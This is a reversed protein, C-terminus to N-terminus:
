PKGPKMEEVPILTETVSLSYWDPLGRGWLPLYLPFYLDENYIQNKREIEWCATEALIV